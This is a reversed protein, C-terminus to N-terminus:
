LKKSSITPAAARITSVIAKETSARQKPDEPAPFKRIVEFTLAEWVRKRLRILTSSEKM